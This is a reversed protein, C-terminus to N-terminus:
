RVSMSLTLVYVKGAGASLLARSCAQATAGTTYIDDVLLVIEGRKIYSSEGEFAQELNKRREQKSLEKQPTTKRRRVLAREAVPIGMQRSIGKALLAAQNYGRKRKRDSALPVPVIVDIGKERIWTGCSAVMSAAYVAAYERKRRYKYSAISTAMVSDYLYVSRGEEYVPERKQCDPCYAAEMTDVPRGCKMCYPEEIKKLKALCAKHVPLGNQFAEGFDMLEGCFPCSAPYLLGLMQEGIRRTKEIFTWFFSM